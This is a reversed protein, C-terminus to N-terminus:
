ENYSFIIKHFLDEIMESERIIGSNISINCGEDIMAIFSLAILLSWDDLEKFKTTPTFVDRETDKDNITEEM